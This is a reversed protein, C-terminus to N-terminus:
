ITLSEEFLQHFKDANKKNTKVFSFGFVYASIFKIDSGNDERPTIEIYLNEGWTMLNPSTIALLEMKKFDSNVLKFNSDEIVDQVKEFLLESSIETAITREEKSTMFNFKSLIWSKFRIKQRVALSLLLFFLLFLLPIYTQISSLDESPYFYRYIGYLGSILVLKIINSKM